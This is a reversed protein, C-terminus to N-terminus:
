IICDNLKFKKLKDFPVQYMENASGNEKVGDLEPTRELAKAPAYGLVKAGTFNLGDPTREFLVKVGVLWVGNRLAKGRQRENCSITDYKTTAKVDMYYTRWKVKIQVDWKDGYAGTDEKHAKWDLKAYECYKEFAMEGLFGILDYDKQM